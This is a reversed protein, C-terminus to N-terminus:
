VCNPDFKSPQIDFSNPEAASRKPNSSFWHTTFVFGDIVKALTYFDVPVEPSSSSRTEVTKTISPRSVRLKM